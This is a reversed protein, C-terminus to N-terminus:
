GAGTNHMEHKTRQSLSTAFWQSFWRVGVDCAVHIGHDTRIATSSGSRKLAQFFDARM